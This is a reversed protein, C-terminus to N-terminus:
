LKINKGMAMSHMAMMVSNLGSLSLTVVSLFAFGISYLKATFANGGKKSKALPPVALNLIHISSRALKGMGLFLIGTMVPRQALLLKTEASQVAFQSASPILTASGVRILPACQHANM